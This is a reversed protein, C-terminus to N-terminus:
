AAVPVREADAKAAELNISKGLIAAAGREAVM